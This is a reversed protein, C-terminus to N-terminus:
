RVVLDLAAFQEKGDKGAAGKTELRLLYCGAKEIKFTLEAETKDMPKFDMTLASEAAVDKTLKPVTEQGPKEAKVAFFHIRVDKLTQKADPNRVTWKVTVTEAAKTELVERPKPKAAADVPQAHATKAAKGAKVELDIAFPVSASEPAAGLFRSAGVYAGILVFAAIAIRSV